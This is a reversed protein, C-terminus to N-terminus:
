IIISLFLLEKRKMSINKNFATKINKPVVINFEM